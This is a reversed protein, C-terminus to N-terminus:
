RSVTFDDFLVKSDAKSWLGCRGAPSRDLKRKFREKGDLAAAFETGKISVDLTHWTRTTTEVGRITQLVSRRGKVVKFFLMNDELANARVGWYSGDQGVDFAIGAGQDIRGAIPYFRVSVKRDGACEGTWVALPFFAFARVGDLFEAYRDAYLRKAQDALNASPTGQRWRTGDVMLGRKGDAEGVYWDGILGEFAHSPEGVKEADFTVPSPSQANGMQPATAAVLAIMGSVVARANCRGDARTLKRDPLPNM